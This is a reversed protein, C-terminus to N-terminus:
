RSDKPTTLKEARKHQTRGPRRDISTSVQVARFEDRVWIYTIDASRLQDAATLIMDRALNPYVRRTHNSDTTIVFKPKRVCLLNGDRM